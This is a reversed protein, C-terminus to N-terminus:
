KSVEVAVERFEYQGNPDDVVWYDTMGDKFRVAYCDRAPGPTPAPATKLIYLLDAWKGSRFGYPHMTRIQTM